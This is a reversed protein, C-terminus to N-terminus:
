YIGGARKRDASGGDGIKGPDDSQLEATTRDCGGGGRGADHVWLDSRRDENWLFLPYLFVLM